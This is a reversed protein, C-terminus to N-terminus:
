MFLCAWMCFEFGFSALMFNWEVVDLMHSAISQVGYTLHIKHHRTLQKVCAGFVGLM